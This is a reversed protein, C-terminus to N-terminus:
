DKNLNSNGVASNLHDVGKVKSQPNRFYPARNLLNKFKLGKILKFTITLTLNMTVM